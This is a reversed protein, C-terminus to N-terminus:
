LRRCRGFEVNRRSNRPGDLLFEARKRGLGPLQEPGGGDGALGEIRLECGLDGSEIGSMTERQEILQDRAIENSWLLVQPRKAEPMRQHPTRDIVSERGSLAQRCVAARGNRELFDSSREAGGRVM